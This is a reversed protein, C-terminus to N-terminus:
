NSNESKFHGEGKGQIDRKQLRAAGSRSAELAMCVRPRPAHLLQRVFFFPRDLFSPRYRNIVVEMATKYFASGKAIKLNWHQQVALSHVLKPRFLLHRTGLPKPHFLTFHVFYLNFSAIL